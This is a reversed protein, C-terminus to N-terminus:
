CRLEWFTARVQPTRYMKVEVHAERWLPTCKKSMEVGVLPEPRLHKTRKSKWIHKGGRHRASKRCRLEWFHDPGSTSQVNKVEVHAKRWLLTCSKMERRALQSRVRRKLSGVSFMPFACHKAVRRGNRAGADESKQSDGKRIKERRVKEMGSSSGPQAKGDTWRDM